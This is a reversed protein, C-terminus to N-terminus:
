LMEPMIALHTKYRSINAVHIKVSGELHFSAPAFRHCPCRYVHLCSPSSVVRHLNIRHLYPCFLCDDFSRFVPSPDWLSPLCVFWFMLYSQSRRCHSPARSCCSLQVLLQDLSVTESHMESMTLHCCRLNNTQEKRKSSNCAPSFSEALASTLAPLQQQICCM